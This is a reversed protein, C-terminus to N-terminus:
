TLICIGMGMHWGYLFRRHGGQGRDAATCRRLCSVDLLVTEEALHERFAMGGQLGDQDYSFVTDPAARDYLAPAMAAYGSRAFQDCVDGLHTTLGYIAQLFIIGGKGDGAPDSRWADFTHGDSATVTVREAM